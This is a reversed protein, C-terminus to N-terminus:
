YPVILAVESDLPGVRIVVPFREPDLRRKEVAISCFEAAEVTEDQDRCALLVPGGELVECFQPRLPQSQRHGVFAQKFESSVDMSVDVDQERDPIATDAGM